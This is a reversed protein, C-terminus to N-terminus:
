SKGEGSLFFPHLAAYSRSGDKALKLFQKRELALLTRTLSTKPIILERRIKAVKVAAPASKQVYQVIGREKEDLTALLDLQRRTPVNPPSQPKTGKQKAGEKSGSKGRGLWYLLVALLAALIAVYALLPAPDPKSLRVEVSKFEGQSLKLQEMASEEGQRLALLCEGVGVGKFHFAGNASTTAKREIGDSCVLEALAGDVVSGNQLAAVGAIDGVLTLKLMVGKGCGVEGEYYGDPAPTSPDDLSFSAHTFNLRPYLTISGGKKAVLVTSIRQVDDWYEVIVFSDESVERPNVIQFECEEVNGFPPAPSYAFSSAVLFLAAVAAIATQLGM